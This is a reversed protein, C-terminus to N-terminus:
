YCGGTNKEIEKIATKWSAETCFTKMRKTGRGGNHWMDLKPGVICSIVPHNPFPYFKVSLDKM